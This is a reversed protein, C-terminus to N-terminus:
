AEKENLSRLINELIKYGKEYEFDHGIHKARKRRYTDFVNLITTLEKVTFVAAKKNVVDGLYNTMPVRKIRFAPGGTFRFYADRFAQIAGREDTLQPLVYEM